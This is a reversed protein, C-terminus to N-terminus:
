GLGWCPVGTAAFLIIAISNRLQIDIQLQSAKRTSGFKDSIDTHKTKMVRFALRGRREEIEIAIASAAPPCKTNYTAM